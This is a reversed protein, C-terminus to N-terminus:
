EDVADSNFLGRPRVFLFVLLVAYAILDKYKSSVYGSIFTELMGLIIGGVISGYINGMGGMVAGSFGKGNLNAGLSTYVGYLPGVLIGAIAGVGASLGWTVANSLSVDIGFTQAASPDTAAARLSIGFKTKSLFLHLVIMLLFSVGVCLLKETQYVAGFIKVTSKKLISPFSLTVAGWTFRASNQIIYSIASTALMVSVTGVRKIIKSVVAIQLLYGFGIMLILTLLLSVVFPLKLIGYFTYGLYAGLTLMDGQAQNMVGSAKFILSTGIGLLGYMCGLVLGSVLLQAFM